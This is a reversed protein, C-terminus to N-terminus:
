EMMTRPVHATAVTGAVGAQAAVQPDIEELAQVADRRVNRDRDQLLKLLNPVASQADRGLRGLALACGWRSDPRKSQLGGILLRVVNERDQGIEALAWGCLANISEPKDEIFRQKLAAVTADPIFAGHSGLAWISCGAAADNTDSIAQTLVEWGEPGMAALVEAAEKPSNTGRLIRTLDPLLPHLQPAMAELALAARHHFVSPPTAKAFLSERKPKNIELMALMRPLANTGMVQIAQAAEEQKASRNTAPQWRMWQLAIGRQRYGDDLQALWSSASRGQYKPESSNVEAILIIGATATALCLASFVTFKAKAWAISKLTAHILATTSAAVGVGKVAAATTAVVGVPAAQVANASIVATLAIAPLAVGRKTCLSRLKEVARVVRKQATAENIGLASGVDKASKNEFYKLVIANRDVTSLQAMASDLLPSLQEWVSDTPEIQLQAAKNERERRRAETRLARGAAFQTTRYLWGSLVIERRLTRAKRALIIFTTQTVEGAMATDRVQRLATSYVLNVHRNLITEFAIDSDNEVYERLLEM